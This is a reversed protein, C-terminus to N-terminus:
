SLACIWCMLDLSREKPDKATSANESSNNKTKDPENNKQKSMKILWGKM